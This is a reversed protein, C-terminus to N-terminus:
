AYISIIISRKKQQYEANLEQKKRQYESDLKQKASNYRNKAIARKNAYERSLMREKTSLKLKDSTKESKTFGQEIPASINSDTTLTNHLRYQSVLNIGTSMSSM